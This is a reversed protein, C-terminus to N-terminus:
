ADDPLVEREVSEQWWGAAACRAGAAQFMLGPTWASAATACADEIAISSERNLEQCTLGLAADGLMCTMRLCAECARLWCPGTSIAGDDEPADEKAWLRRVGAAAPPEPWM